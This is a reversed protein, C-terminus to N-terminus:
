AEESGAQYGAWYAEERTAAPHEAFFARRLDSVSRERTIVFKLGANYVYTDIEGADLKAKWQAVAEDTSLELPFMVAFDMAAIVTKAQQERGESESLM